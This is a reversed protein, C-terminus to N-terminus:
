CGIVQLHGEKAHILPRLPNRPDLCHIHCDTFSVKCGDQTACIVLRRKRWM